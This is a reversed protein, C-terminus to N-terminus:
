LRVSRRCSTTRGRCLPGCSWGIVKIGCGDRCFGVGSGIVDPVLDHAVLVVAVGCRGAHGHSDLSTGAAAAAGRGGNRNGHRAVRSGAGHRDLRADAARRSRDRLQGVLLERLHRRVFGTILVGVRFRLRVRDDDVDTADGLVDLGCGNGGLGDLRDLLGAAIELDRQGVAADLEVRRRLCDDGVLCLTRGDLDVEVGHLDRRQRARLLARDLAKLDLDNQVGVHGRVALADAVELAAAGRKADGIRELITLSRLTNDHPIDGAVTCASLDICAIVSLVYHEGNRVEGVVDDGIVRRLCCGARLIRRARDASESVCPRGRPIVVTDVPRNFVAHHIAHTVSLERWVADGGARLDDRHQPTKFAARGVDTHALEAVHVVFLPVAGRDAPCACLTDDVTVVVTAEARVVGHGALLKHGDQVAVRLVLLHVHADALIRVDEAIVISKVNGLPCDGRHLPRTAGADYVADVLVAREHKGRGVGRGARDDRRHEPPEALLLLFIANWCLPPAKKSEAM